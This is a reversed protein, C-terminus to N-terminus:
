TKKQFYRLYLNVWLVKKSIIDKEINTDFCCNFPVVVIANKKSFIDGYEISLLKDNSLKVNVANSFFHKFFALIYSAVFTLAVFIIRCIINESIQEFEIFGVITIIALLSGFYVWVKHWAHKLGQYIKIM